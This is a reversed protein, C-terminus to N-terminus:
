TIGISISKYEMQTLTFTNLESIEHHDFFSLIRFSGAYNYIVLPFITEHSAILSFYQLNM